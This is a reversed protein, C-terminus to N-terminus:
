ALDASKACPPLFLCFPWALGPADAFRAQAELYPSTGSHARHACRSAVAQRLHKALAKYRMIAKYKPSLKPVNSAIWARIGGNRGVIEGDPGFRLCNDM